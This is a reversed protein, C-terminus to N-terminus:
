DTTHACKVDRRFIFKLKEDINNSKVMEIIFM